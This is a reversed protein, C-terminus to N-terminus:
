EDPLGSDNDSEWFIVKLWGAHFTRKSDHTFTLPGLFPTSEATLMLIGSTLCLIPWHILPIKWLTTNVENIVLWAAKSIKM